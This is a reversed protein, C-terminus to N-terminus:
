QLLDEGQVQVQNIVLSSVSHLLAAGLSLTAMRCAHHYGGQTTVPPYTITTGYHSLVVWFFKFSIGFDFHWVGSDGLVIIGDKAGFFM